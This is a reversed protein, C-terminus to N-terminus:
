VRSLASYIIWSTWHLIFHWTGVLSQCGRGMASLFAEADPYALYLLPSDLGWGLTSHAVLGLCLCGSDEGWGELAMPYMGLGSGWPLAHCQDFLFLCNTPMWLVLPCPTFAPCCLLQPELGRAWAGSNCQVESVFYLSLSVIILCRLVAVLSCEVRTHARESNLWVSQVELFGVTVRSHLWVHHSQQNFFRETGWNICHHLTTITNIECFKSTLLGPM